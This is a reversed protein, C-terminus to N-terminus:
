EKSWKKEMRSRSIVQIWEKIEQDPISKIGKKHMRIALDVMISLPIDAAGPSTYASNIANVIVQATSRKIIYGPFDVNESLRDYQAFRTNPDAFLKRTSYDIGHLAGSSYGRDFMVVTIIKSEETLESWAYGNHEGGYIQSRTAFLLLIMFILGGKSAFLKRKEPNSQNPKKRL